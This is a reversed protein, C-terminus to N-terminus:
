EKEPLASLERRADRVWLGVSVLGILAGVIAAPWAIVIGTLTLTIGLAMTAPWYSPAPLHFTSPSHGHQEQAM